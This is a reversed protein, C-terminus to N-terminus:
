KLNTIKWGNNICHRVIEDRVKYHNNKTWSSNEDNGLRLGYNYDCSWLDQKNKPHPPVYTYINGYKQALYSFMIDEGNDWTYPKEFWLYKSWKQKFFWAHGVLDVRVSKDILEGNWGIKRFPLYGNKNVIVGSGGYIGEQQEMSDLCNKFWDKRPLIDDDFLAVYKNKLLLPITFRGWFKTNYNCVYTKIDPNVPYYQKKDSKNYWIHINEEKIKVSQKLIADIQKNLHEGRKYVNLVVAIDDDNIISM